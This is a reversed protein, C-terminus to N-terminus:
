VGLLWIHYAFLLTYASAAIWLGLRALAFNKHVCLVVLAMAILGSKILVFGFRGSQLLLAAVPNLEIGGAPLHTLTFFSDGLNMLAVWLVALVIPFTYRDVFSCEREESRRPGSRRGGWFAYRSLRPTPAERRDSRGRRGHATPSAREALGLGEETASNSTM